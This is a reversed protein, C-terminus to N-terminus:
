YTIPAGKRTKKRKEKKKEISPITYLTGHRNFFPICFPFPNSKAPLEGYKLSNLLGEWMDGVGGGEGHQVVHFESVVKFDSFFSACLYSKHKSQEVGVYQEKLFLYILETRCDPGCSTRSIYNGAIHNTWVAVLVNFM